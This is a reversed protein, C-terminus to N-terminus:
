SVSNLPSLVMFVVVEYPSLVMSRISPARLMM